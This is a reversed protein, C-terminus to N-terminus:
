QVQQTLLLTTNTNCVSGRKARATATASTCGTGTAGASSEPLPSPSEEKQDCSCSQHQLQEEMRKKLDEEAKQATLRENVLDVVRYLVSEHVDDHGLWNLAM